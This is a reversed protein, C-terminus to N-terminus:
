RGVKGGGGEMKVGEGCCGKRGIVQLREELSTKEKNTRSLAENVKELEADLTACDKEKQAKEQVTQEMTIKLETLNEKYHELEAEVKRRAASINANNEVEEDLRDVLEQLSHPITFTLTLHTNLDITLSTTNLHIRTRNHHTYPTGFVM